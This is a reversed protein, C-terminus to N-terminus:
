ILAEGYYTGRRQTDVNSYAGGELVRRGELLRRM